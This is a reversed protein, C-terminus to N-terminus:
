KKARKAKRSSGKGGARGKKNSRGGRNSRPGSSRGSEEGSREEVGRRSLKIKGAADMGVVKVPIIDGMKVVENINKVYGEAIESVHLLGETGPLIELFVGFDKISVVKGEYVKGVEAEEVLGKIEKLARKVGEEDPGSITVVGSDDIEIKSGTSDQLARVVKGGAGIVAGIKDAPICLRMVKPAYPSVKARPRELVKLMAQLIQLRGRKAQHLARLIVEESIGKIKVDMQLATIGQQTGAVKFDMDGHHDEEGMIDSLIFYDEGDKILGMAIGAVPRKIPVGADMLSLTGGCVSAMSSSGNSSLIDSVVRITYPFVEKSPLVPLLAREALAGHGIERRGAGRYPWTEGVSFSPFNYHLMFSKMYEEVLGDVKQADMETGLTTTVLAQTEGRTFVASGHIRSLVGVEMQLPRIEELGRGGLRKGERVLTHLARKELHHIFGKVLREQEEEDEEEMDEVSSVCDRFIVEKLEDLALQYEPGSPLLFVKRMPELYKEELEGYWSPDEEEEWPEKEVGVLKQLERQMQIIEKIYGFGFAIAEAVREEEVERAGAEVMVIHEETGAVVLELGGEEIQEYTPMVVFNEGELGVCVVGIPGLFPLFSTSLATSAGIVSLWSPEHAGDVSWVHSTIAIEKDYGKPWLPRLARDALRMGLIEKTSPRGERKIFGGPFKGAAFTNERYDVYMQLFDADGRGESASVVSFVITDGYQVTCSSAARYAYKGIEIKLLESGIKREVRHVTDM